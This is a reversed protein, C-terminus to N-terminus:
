GKEGLSPSIYVPVGGVVTRAVRGQVPREDFPSNKSKSIFDDAKVQWPADPDFIIIDAPAGSKLHGANLGLIEAPSATLTKLLDPLSMAKNHYLELSVALLTEFGVAGPSAQAFPQRKSDEDHPTHDSAIADIIGDKLGEVIAQRDAESRLPPSLRAFTRYDGVALENLAFYFPATDCTINLGREKARRIVNVSLATSIHGAHYRGGTMELLRIDRELLIVEAVNSIGGLGLRTSIEGSNMVGGEALTPDEPHQVLLLDFSKAYSLARSMVKPNGVAKLGDTFAIAGAASLLGMETIEDGRMGQTIAAYPYINVMAAERARREIFGVLAVSDIPPDTNPLCALSTIGGAAASQSGSSITEKHEFGPEGLQARMDVLGPTLCMGKCDITMVDEPLIDAALRPGFDVILNEDTLLAGTEDLGSAPDILRANIYAIKTM